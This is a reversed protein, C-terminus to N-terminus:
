KHTAVEDLLRALVSPDHPFGAKIWRAQLDKLAAGLARGESFGRAQLDLGSFPLRPEPTDRLFAKAEAWGDNGLPADAQALALADQAGQRDHEFLLSRLEGPPPPRDRGHLRLLAKGATTLRRAEGNSLRLNDRLRDADEPLNLCIAALRLLVDSAPDIAILRELRGPNPALGLLPGLLGADSMDRLIASARRAALLKFLEARVREKSLGALGHRENIAAALGQADLAGEAYDASFRFFRLIRLYDERIRNQAIGIFRIRHAALDALGGAYDYLRGDRSMSLANVTFDRREADRAFDGGFRVVARRGDTEVDERLTTIEFPEGSVLVTVTGHEIGTPICRLKAKAAREIVAAPLLTTALDVEDVPRGRLANRLAGGVIRTEAASDCLLDLLQALRPRQLLGVAAQPAESAPSMM